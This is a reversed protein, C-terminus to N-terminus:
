ALIKLVYAELGLRPSIAGSKVAYDTQHFDDCIKKLRVPSYQRSQSLAIKVAYEKVGLKKALGEDGPNVACYLLRRFHGYVMSLINVESFGSNLLFKLVAAAHARDKKAVAESLEFIKYEADPTVLNRVDDASIEGNLRFVGLKETERSIRTLDRSGYNLLTQVANPSIQTNTQALKGGIWKALQGDNLRNCDILELEASINLLSESPKECIFVLVAAINPKALYESFAAADGKFEYCFVLRVPALVPLTECADVVPRAEASDYFASINMEPMVPVLKAFHKVAAQMVFADDGTVLYAPKVPGDQLHKKLEAFKM